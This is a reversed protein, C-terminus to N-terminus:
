TADGPIVALLTLAPLAELDERHRVVRNRRVELVFVILSGVLAGALAGLGFNVALRPRYLAFTPHDQPVASIREGEPLNENLQQRYLILQQGWAAAVRNASEGDTDNVEIRIRSREPEAVIEARGKMELGSLELGLAEVVREAVPVSHLYTVYANLQRLNAALVNADVREPQVIMYQTARYIRTQRVSLLYAAGLCLAVCLVLIWGRQLALRGYELLSM